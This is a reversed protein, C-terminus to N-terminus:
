TYQFFNEFSVSSFGHSHDVRKKLFPGMLLLKLGWLLMIRFKYLLVFLPGFIFAFSSNIGVLEGSSPGRQHQSRRPLPLQRHHRHLEAEPCHGRIGSHRIGGRGANHDGQQRGACAHQM